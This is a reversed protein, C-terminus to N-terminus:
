KLFDRVTLKLAANRSKGVKGWKAKPLQSLKSPLKKPQFGYGTLSDNLKEDTDDIQQEIDRITM